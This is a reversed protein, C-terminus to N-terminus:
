KGGTAAPPTVAPLPAPVPILDQPNVNIGMQALLQGQAAPPLDAYSVSVNPKEPPPVAQAAAQVAQKALKKDYFKEVNKRKAVARTWQEFFEELKFGAAEPVKTAKWNIVAGNANTAEQLAKVYNYFDSM